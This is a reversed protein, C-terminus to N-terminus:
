RGYLPGKEKDVLQTTRKLISFWTGFTAGRGGWSQELNKRTRNSLPTDILALALSALFTALGEASRYTEKLIRLTEIEAEALRYSFALPIPYKSIAM